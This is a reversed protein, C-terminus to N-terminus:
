RPEKSSLTLPPQQSALQEQLQLLAAMRAHICERAYDLFHLYAVKCAGELSHKSAQGAFRQPSDPLQLTVSFTEDHYSVELEGLLGLAKLLPTTLDMNRVLVREYTLLALEPTDDWGLSEEAVQWLGTQADLNLKVKVRTAGALAKLRELTALRWLPDLLYHPAGVPFEPTPSASSM